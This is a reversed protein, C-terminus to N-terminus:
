RSVYFKEPQDLPCKREKVIYIFAIHFVVRKARLIEHITCLFHDFASQTKCKKISIKVDTQSTVLCSVLSTIYCRQRCCEAVMPYFVNSTCFRECFSPNRRSCLLHHQTSVALIIIRDTLQEKNLSSVRFRETACQLPESWGRLQWLCQLWAMRVIGERLAPSCLMAQADFLRTIGTGQACSVKNYVSTTRTLGWLLSWQTSVANGTAPM